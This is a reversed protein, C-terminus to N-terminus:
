LMSFWAIKIKCLNVFTNRGRKKGCIDCENKLGLMSWFPMELFIRYFCVLLIVLTPPTYSLFFLPLTHSTGHFTVAVLNCNKNKYAKLLLCYLSWFYNQHPFHANIRSIGSNKKGV